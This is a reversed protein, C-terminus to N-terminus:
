DRKESLEALIRQYEQETQEPARSGLDPESLLRASPLEYPLNMLETMERKLLENDILRVKEWEEETLRGLGYREFVAALIRDEIESYLKLHQKVPRIIDSIYAESADHLLCALTVRRGWGRAKAEAACNVCHQGVTYLRKMHGGGRCLLSLAHAIDETRIEEATLSLPDVQRGTFTCMCHNMRYVQAEGATGNESHKMKKDRDKGATKRHRRMMRGGSRFEAERGRNRVNQTGNDETYRVSRNGVLLFGAKKRAPVGKM